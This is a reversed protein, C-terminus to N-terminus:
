KGMICHTTHHSIAMKESQIRRAGASSNLSSVLFVCDAVVGSGRALQELKTGKRPLPPCNRGGDFPPQGPRVSVPVALPVEASGRALIVVGAWQPVVFALVVSVPALPPRGGAAPVQRQGVLGVPVVMLRHILSVGTAMVLLPMAWISRIVTTTTPGTRPYGLAAARNGLRCGGGLRHTEAPAFSEIRRM